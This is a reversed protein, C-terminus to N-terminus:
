DVGRLRENPDRLEIRVEAQGRSVDVYKIDQIARHSGEPRLYAMLRIPGRPLGSLRFHGSADTAQFWVAGTPAYLPRSQDRQQYSVTAGRVPKGAKDVVFGRVEQDVAPLRYDDLRLTEGPKAKVHNSSGKAYGGVEVQTNYTAGPILRDFAYSGDDKVANLTGVSIGFSRHSDGPYQVDRYLHLVPGAIPKGEEDLVRGILSALSQLRVELPKAATGPVEVTTGLAKDAAIVDIVTDYEPSLGTVEYRGDADSRGPAPNFGRSLDRVDVQANAVPRGDTDVIRLVVVGGRILRFAAVEVTQGAKGAADRSFNPDAPQGVARQEPQGFATPVAQLNLTGRGPPVVIRFRGDAKTKEAFGFYTPTQGPEPKPTFGVGVNEVGQGTSGDVVRGTLILGRPLVLDHETETPSEPIVVETDLPAADSGDVIAHLEIKGASLGEIRFRGNEDTTVDVWNRFVRAGPAPKGDAFSVRGTLVHDATKATLTFPGTLVPHRTEEAQGNRFSPIVGDQQPADTTATYAVLREHRPETVVLSVLRDRPLGRITFRGDADTKASLFGSWILNLRNETGLGNDLPMGLPDVGFVRVKAGAVPKGGPEVVRGQLTGEAPLTLSIPVRQDHLTLQTWALGHGPALAVVDWPFVSRGAEPITPFSPAPVDRFQFRGEADTRTEALKDALEEEGRVLKETQKPPVGRVRYVSWERLIVTAGVVPKGGGDVVKGAASLKAALPPTQAKGEPSDAAAAPPVGRKGDQAPGAALAFGIVAGSVGVAVVMAAALKFKTAVMFGLEERVLASVTAPVVGATAGGASLAAAARATASALAPPLAAAAEAEFLGLSGMAIAASPAFGRRVLRERLRRRGRALRSKVTGLPWRLRQAAEEHSLGELCCLVVPLRQADALRDVEQDIVSRLEGGEVRDAYEVAVEGAEPRRRAKGRDERVRVRLAIRRAVRHLWGGLADRNRVSRARRALVLFTAQFADEALHADVLLRRCVGLVMPGHREVLAAFAPESGSDDHALFRGLLQGDSWTGLTGAQFLTQIQEGLRSEAYGRAM